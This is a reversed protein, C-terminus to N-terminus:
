SDLWGQKEALALFSERIRVIQAGTLDPVESLLLETLDERLESVTLVEISDDDRVAAPKSPQRTVATVDYAKAGRDSDVIGFKVSTGPQFLSEADMLDNAHVFVDEGGDDPAIFGYGRVTDFRVIRGTKV